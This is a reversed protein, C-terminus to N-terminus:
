SSIVDNAYWLALAHPLCSSDCVFVFCKGGYRFERAANLLAMMVHLSIDVTSATVSVADDM